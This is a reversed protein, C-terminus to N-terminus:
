QRQAKYSGALEALLKDMTKLKLEKKLDMLLAHTEKSVAVSKGNVIKEDM